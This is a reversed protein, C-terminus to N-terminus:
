FLSLQDDPPNSRHIENSLRAEEQEDLWEDYRKDGKTGNCSQCFIGINRAHHRAWDHDSRPPERHELQIDRQHDFPHGCSLCRGEASMMARLVPTLANYNMNVLMFQKTVGLKRATHGARNDIIAKALDENKKENREILECDRCNLNFEWMSGHPFNRKRSRFRSFHKWLGCKACLRECPRANESSLNYAMSRSSHAMM